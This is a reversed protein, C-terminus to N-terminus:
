CMTARLWRRALIQSGRIPGSAGVGGFVDIWVNLEGGNPALVSITNAEGRVLTITPRGGIQTLPGVVGDEDDFVLPDAPM